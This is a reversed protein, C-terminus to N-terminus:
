PESRKLRIPEDSIRYVKPMFGLGSLVGEASGIAPNDTTMILDGSFSNGIMRVPATGNYVITVNDFTCNRFEKGDILVKESRFSRDTVLKLTANRNYSYTKYHYHYLTALGCGLALFALGLGARLRGNTGLRELGKWTLVRKLSPWKIGVFFFLVAIVVCGVIIGPSKGELLASVGDFAFALAFMECFAFAVGDGTPVENSM